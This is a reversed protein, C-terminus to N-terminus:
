NGRRPILPSVKEMPISVEITGESYPAIEYENYIYVLEDKNLYFNGNPQVDDKDFLVEDIRDGYELNLAELILSKLKATSNPKFFNSEDLLTANRLDINYIRVNHSGHAGGMYSETLTQVTLISDISDVVATKVTQYYNAFDAMDGDLESTMLPLSQKTKLLLAMDGDLESAMELSEDTLQKEFLEFAGKPSRGAYDEGAFALVFLNQLKNLLSDNCYAVPYTFELKLKMYPKTSDNSAFIKKDVKLTDFALSEKKVPETCSLLFFFLFLFVVFNKM